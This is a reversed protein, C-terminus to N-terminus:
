IQSSDSAFHNQTLISNIRLFDTQNPRSDFQNQAPDNQIWESRNWNGGPFRSPVPTSAVDGGGSERGGLNYVNGAFALAATQTGSGGFNFIGSPTNMSNPNNTWSSGNYKETSNTAPASSATPDSGGFKLASTQTGANAFNAVGVNVNYGTNTWSSGNFAETEVKVYPASGNRGAFAIAATQTGAGGLGWRTTNLGTPNNTWATGDYKETAGTQPEGGFAMAATATGAPGVRQRAVNTPSSTAWANPGILGYFKIKQTGTNYWIQGPTLNTPDTAVGEVNQGKVEYYTSM